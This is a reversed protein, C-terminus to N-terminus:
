SFRGEEIKAVNDYKGNCFKISQEVETRKSM